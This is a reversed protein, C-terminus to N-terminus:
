DRTFDVSVQYAGSVSGVNVATDFSVSEGDGFPQHEKLPLEFAKLVTGSASLLYFTLYGRVSTRSNNKIRGSITVVSNAPFFEAELNELAVFSMQQRLPPLSRGAADGRVNAPHFVPLSCLLATLALFKLNKMIRIIEVSESHGSRYDSWRSFLKNEDGPLLEM